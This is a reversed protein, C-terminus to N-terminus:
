ARIDAQLEHNRMAKEYEEYEEYEEYGTLEGERLVRLASQKGLLNASAQIIKTHSRCKKDVIRPCM